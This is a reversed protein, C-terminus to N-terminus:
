EHRGSVTSAAPLPPLLLDLLEVCKSTLWTAFKKMRINVVQESFYGLMASAMACFRANVISEPTEVFQQSAPQTAQVCGRWFQRPKLLNNEDRNRTQFDGDFGTHEAGCKIAFGWRM